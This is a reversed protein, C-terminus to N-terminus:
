GHPPGFFGCISTILGDSSLRGFDVGEVIVAGEPLALHWAFYFNDHHTSIGSTLEIRAGPFQAQVSGIHAALADRGQVDAGPDQYQGDPHWCAALLAAREGADETCWAASYTEILETM